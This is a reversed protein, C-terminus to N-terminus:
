YDSKQLFSDVQKEAEIWDQIEGGPSFGRKEANLYAALEIMKQRETSSVNGAQVATGKKKGPKNGAKSTLKGSKKVVPRAAAKKSKSKAKSGVKSSAASKKAVKKRATTKKSPPTKSAM